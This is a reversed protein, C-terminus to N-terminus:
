GDKAHFDRRFLYLGYSVPVIDRSKRYLHICHLEVKLVRFRKEFNGGNHRERDREYM